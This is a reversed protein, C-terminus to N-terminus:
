TINGALSNKGQLISSELNRGKTEIYKDKLLQSVISKIICSCFNEKWSSNKHDKITEKREENELGKEHQGYPPQWYKAWNTSFFTLRQFASFM